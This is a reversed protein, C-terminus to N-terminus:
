ITMDDTLLISILYVPLRPLLLVEMEHEPLRMLASEKLEKFDIFGNDDKDYMQFLTLLDRRQEDSLTKSPKGWINVIAEIQSSHSRGFLRTLLQPLTVM